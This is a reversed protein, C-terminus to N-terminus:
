QGDRGRRVTGAVPRPNHRLFERPHPDAHFFGDRFVMQLTARAARRALAARDIGAAALRPLDNVKVGRIRQLTLVRATCLQDVVLPIHVATDGAFNASFRRANAAEAVYDLEAQLTTAFAHVWGSLLQGLKIFTAGLEEAALRVHEPGTISRPHWTKGRLRYYFPVVQWRRKLAWGLGHRSLVRAVQRTRARQRSRSSSSGM